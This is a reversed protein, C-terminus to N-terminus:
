LQPQLHEKILSELYNLENQLNQVILQNAAVTHMFVETDTVTTQPISDVSKYFVIREKLREVVGQLIPYAKFVDEKEQQRADSQDQPEALLFESSSGGAVADDM